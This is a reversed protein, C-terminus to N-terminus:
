VTVYPRFENRGRLKVNRIAIIPCLIIKAMAANAAQQAPESDFSCVINAVFCGIKLQLLLILLMMKHRNLGEVDRRRCRRCLVM